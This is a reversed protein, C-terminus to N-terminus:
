VGTGKKERPPIPPARGEIAQEFAAIVSEAEALKKRVAEEM